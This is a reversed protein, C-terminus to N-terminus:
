LILFGRTKKLAGLCLTLSEHGGKLPHHGGGGGEAHSIGPIDNKRSKYSKRSKRCLIVYFHISDEKKLHYMVEQSRM